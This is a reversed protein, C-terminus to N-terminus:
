PAGRRVDVEGPDAPPESPLLRRGLVDVVRGALAGLGAGAVVDAPHHVGTHVRSWAVAAALPTLVAATRPAARAVATAYAAASAAHGSPFAATTPLARARRAPPVEDFPPRGRRVTRKLPQNATASALGVALLGRAAADGRGAAVLVLSVCWWLVAHDAAHTLALLPRDARTPRAAAVRRFLAVDAAAARGAARSAVRRARGRAGRAGGSAAHSGIM